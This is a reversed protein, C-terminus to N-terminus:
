SGLYVNRLDVTTTFILRRYNRVAPPPTYRKAVAVMGTSSIGLFYSNTDNFKADPVNGRVVLWIKIAKVQDVKNTGDSVNNVWQDVYGDGNTDLGYQFQLDEVNELVPQNGNLEFNNRRLTGTSDVYYRLDQIGNFFTGNKHAYTLGDGNAFSVTTKDSSVSTILRIESNNRDSITIYNGVSFVAKERYKVKISEEGASNGGATSSIIGYIGQFNGRIRIADPGTDSNISSLVTFTTGNKFYYNKDRLGAGVMRIEKAIYDLVAKATYQTEGIDSHISYTRSQTVFVSALSAILIGGVAMVILLEVLSFGKNNMAKEKTQYSM